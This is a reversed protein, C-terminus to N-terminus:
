FIGFVFLLNCYVLVGDEDVWLHAGIEVWIRIM